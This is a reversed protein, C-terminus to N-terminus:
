NWNVEPYESIFVRKNEQAKLIRDNDEESNPFLSRHALARTIKQYTSISEITLEQVSAEEFQKWVYNVTEESPHVLDNKKFFVCHWYEYHNRLRELNFFVLRM